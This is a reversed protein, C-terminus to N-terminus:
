IRHWFVLACGTPSFFPYFSVTFLFCVWVCASVWTVSLDQCIWILNFESRQSRMALLWLRIRKEKRWRMCLRYGVSIEYKYQLVPQSLTKWWKMLVPWFEIKMTLLAHWFILCFYCVSVSNFYVNYLAFFHTNWDFLLEVLYMCVRGTFIPM